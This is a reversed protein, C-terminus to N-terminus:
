GPVSDSLGRAVSASVGGATVVAVTVAYQQGDHGYVSVVVPDTM